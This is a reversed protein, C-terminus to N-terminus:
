WFYNLNFMHGYVEEILRVGSSSSFCYYINKYSRNFLVKYNYKKLLLFIKILYTGMRAFIPMNGM